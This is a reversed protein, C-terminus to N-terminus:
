RALDGIEDDSGAGLERESLDGGAILLAEDRLKVIPASLRRNLLTSVAISALLCFVTVATLVWALRNIEAGAEGAAVNVALVWRQGGPLNVPTFVAAYEQGDTFAYKGVAQKGDGAAQKFLAILRDDALGAPQDGAPKSKKEALNLRGALLPEKPYSLVTGADDALLGGGTEKYKIDSVIYELNELPLSGSVVALLRGDAALVPVAIIVSLKGTLGSTIVDSVVPKRTAVIKRFYDRDAVNTRSGNARIAAGDPFICNVNALKTLRKQEAALLAAIGAGDKGERVAEHGAIGELQAVIIGVDRTVKEAGGSGIAAMTDGLSRALFGQALYYSAGGLLCMSVFLVAGTIISLRARLGIRGIFM